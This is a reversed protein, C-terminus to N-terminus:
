LRFYLGFNVLGKYGFGFEAFGCPNEGYRVGALSLHGDFATSKETIREKTESLFSVGASVASYVTLKNESYYRFSLDGGVTFAKYDARIREYTDLWWSSIIEDCSGKMYGITAGYAFRSNTLRHWSLLLPGTERINDYELDVLGFTFIVSVFDIKGVFFRGNTSALGYSLSIYNKSPYSGSPQSYSYTCAMCLLLAPLIIKRNM